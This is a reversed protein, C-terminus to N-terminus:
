SPSSSLDSASADQKTVSSGDGEPKLAEAIADEVTLGYGELWARNGAANSVIERAADLSAKMKVQESPALPIGITQRLGAAAGALRLAREPHQQAAAALAFSELLRAIGRKHDLEQFIAVSERYLARMAPYDREEMALNGLDALASAVGWGNGLKRFIALSQENLARAVYLEGQDRAVDGQYNLTWALGTEDGLDRFVAVCEAYLDLAQKHDGELKAINALNSLARAVTNQDGLERWQALSQESLSRAGPMDGGERAILALANLSVAVGQKDNLARAIELSERLQSNAHGYDGQGYALVGAAFLARGRAKNTKATAPLKLVKDLWHRGEAFYERVEWFRFLAAGLRMGWEAEGTEALWELSARFNDHELTFRELWEAETAGGHAAAGEEALVLCYAARTRKTAAEEGSEKLKEFAYERITELMAYRSEGNPQEIQRVLSKDVISSMGDLLDIGLDASADCVAEASELTCGGAFVSLRRFLKQEAGSLLEHSWDMAGRLTRQRQPMDQAGGTLLQLRSALRTKM